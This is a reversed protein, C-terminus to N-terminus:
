KVDTTPATLRYTRPTDSVQQAIQQKVLTTLCNAIAGSSKEIARSIRTATFAEDPHATLHAIVMQRLGGPALRVRQGPTPAPQAAPATTLEDGAAEGESTKETADGVGPTPAAASDPAPTDATPAATQPAAESVTDAADRAPAEAPDPSDNAPEATATDKADADPTPNTQVRQWRDPTRHPGDHGGPERHALGHQELTTLAKSATSRGLGAALALEAATAPETLSALETYVAAPAGTLGTLPEPEPVAPLTRTNTTTDSENSM